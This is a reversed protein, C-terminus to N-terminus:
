TLYATTAAREGWRPRITLHLVLASISLLLSQAIRVAWPHIGVLRYITGVFLPYGPMLATVNEDGLTYGLGRSLNAGSLDYFFADADLPVPRVLLLFALHALFVLATALLLRRPSPSM